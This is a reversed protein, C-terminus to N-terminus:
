TEIKILKTLAGLAVLAEDAIKIIKYKESDVDATDILYSAAKICLSPSDRLHGLAVNCGMCLIGRVAGTDHDHDVHTSKGLVLAKSCIRCEGQQADFMASLEDYRKGYKKYYRADRECKRCTHKWGKVARAWATKTYESREKDAECTACKYVVLKPPM